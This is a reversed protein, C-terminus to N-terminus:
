TMVAAHDQSLYKVEPLRLKQMQPLPFYYHNHWLITLMVYPLTHFASLLTGPVYYSSHVLISLCVSSFSNSASSFSPPSASPSRSGSNLQVGTHSDRRSSNKWGVRRTLGTGWINWWKHSSTSFATAKHDASKILSTWITSISVWM